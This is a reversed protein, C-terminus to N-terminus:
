VGIDEDWLEPKAATFERMLAICTDDDAFDLDVGRSRLYAEVLSLESPPLLMRRLAGPQRLVLTFRPEIPPSDVTGDWYRLAFGRRAVPGFLDDVVLQAARVARGPAPRPERRVQPATQLSM